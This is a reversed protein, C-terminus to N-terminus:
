PPLSLRMGYWEDLEEETSLPIRHAVGEFGHGHCEGGGRDVRPPLSQGTRSKPGASGDGDAVPAGSETFRFDFEMKGSPGNEAELKQQLQLLVVVVFSDM